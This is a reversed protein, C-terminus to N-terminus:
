KQFKSFIISENESRPGEYVAGDITLGGSVQFQHTQDPTVGSIPVIGSTANGPFEHEDDSRGQIRPVTTHYVTYQSVNWGPLELVMWTVLIATANCAKLQTIRPAAHVHYFIRITILAIRKSVFMSIKPRMYDIVTHM